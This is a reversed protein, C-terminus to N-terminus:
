YRIDNNRKERRTEQREEKLHIYVMLLLSCFGEFILIYAPLFDPQISAVVIGGFISMFGVVFLVVILPRARQNM